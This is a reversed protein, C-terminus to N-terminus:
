KWELEAVYPFHDSAFRTDDNAIVSENKFKFPSKKSYFIYDLKVRPRDSSFTLACNECSAVFTNKLIAVPKSAPRSNLDGALIVPISSNDAMDATAKAELIRNDENLYDYHACIFRVDKGNPFTVTVVSNVWNESGPHDNHPLAVTQQDKIKYKSLIAVGYGWGATDTFSRSDSFYYYKMGTKKALVKAEEQNDSRPWLSDVEQLAVIDPNQSIIVKAVAGLEIKHAAHKLGPPEGHLINYTMVKITKNNEQAQSRTGYVGAILLLPLIRKLQKM